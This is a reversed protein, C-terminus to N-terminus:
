SSPVHRRVRIRAFRLATRLAGSHPSIVESGSALRRCISGSTSEAPEDMTRRPQGSAAPRAAASAAHEARPPAEAVAASRNAEGMSSPSRRLSRAVALSTSPVSHMTPPVAPPRSATPSSASSSGATARSARAPASTSGKRSVSTRPRSAAAPAAITSRSPPRGPGVSRTTSMGSAVAIEARGSSCPSCCASPGAARTPAVVARPSAVADRCHHPLRISLPASAPRRIRPERAGRMPTVWAARSTVPAM